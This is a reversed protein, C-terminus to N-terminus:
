GRQSFRFRFGCQSWNRPEGVDIHVSKTHCYTGVGGAEPLSRLFRALDSRAVGPVFFDAAMCRRHYSGLRGRYRQGSTIIPTAGFRDGAKRVLAMLEPRLCAIDVYDTQKEVQLPEPTREEEQELEETTTEQQQLPPPQVPRFGPYPLASLMTPREAFADHEWPPPEVVPAEAQPAPEPEPPLEPTGPRRPPLPLDPAAALAPPPPPSAPVAPAVNPASIAPPAVPPAGAVPAAPAAPAPASPAVNNPLAGSRLPPLPLNPAPLANLPLLPLEVHDDPEAPPALDSQPPNRFISFIGTQAKAEPMALCALFLALFGSAISRMRSTSRKNRLPFM